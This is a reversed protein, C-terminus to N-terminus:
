IRASAEFRCEMIAEAGQDMPGSGSKLPMLTSKIVLGNMTPDQRLAIELTEFLEVLETEAELNSGGPKKVWIVVNLSYEENIRKAGIFAWDWSDWDSETIVITTRENIRKDWGWSVAASPAADKLAQLLAKKVDLYTTPVM